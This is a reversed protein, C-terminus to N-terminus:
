AGQDILDLMRRPEDDGGLRAMAYRYALTDAYVGLTSDLRLESTWQDFLRWLGDRGLESWRDQIVSWLPGRRKPERITDHVAATWRPIQEAPIVVAIDALAHWRLLDTPGGVEYALDFADEHAGLAAYCGALAARLSMRTTTSLNRDETASLADLEALDLLPTLPQLRYAWDDIRQHEEDHHIGYHTREVGDLFGGDFLLEKVPPRARPALLRAFFPTWSDTGRVLWPCREPFGVDRASAAASLTKQRLARLSSTIEGLVTDYGGGPPLHTGAALLTLRKWPDAASEKAEELLQPVGAETLVCARDFARDLLVEARNAGGDAAPDRPPGPRIPYRRVGSDYVPIVGPLDIERQEWWVEGYAARGNPQHVTDPLHREMLQRLEGPLAKPDSQEYVLDLARAAEQRGFSALRPLLYRRPPCSERDAPDPSTIALARETQDRTLAPALGEIWGNDADLTGAEILDLIRDTYGAAAFAPAHVRAIDFHNVRPPWRPRPDSFRYPLTDFVEDARTRRDEGELSPLLQILAPTRDDDTMRRTIQEAVWSAYRAPVGSMLGDYDYAFAVPVQNRRAFAGGQDDGTSLRCLVREHVRDGLWRAVAVYAKGNVGVPPVWWPYPVFPLTSDNRHDLSAALVQGPGYPGGPEDAYRDLGPQSRAARVWEPLAEYPTPPWLQEAQQRTVCRTLHCAARDPCGTPTTNRLVATLVTRALPEPLLRILEAQTWLRVFARDPHEDPTAPGGPAHPDLAPPPPEPPHEALWDAVALAEEPRGLELLRHAYAATARALDETEGSHPRRELLRYLRPLDEDRMFPALHAIGMLCTHSWLEAFGELYALARGPRWLDHRVLQAALGPTMEDSLATREGALAAACVVQEPLRPLSRDASFARQNAGRVAAAVRAVDRRYGDVDDATEERVQRWRPHVLRLADSLYETADDGYSETDSESASESAPLLHQALHRALYGPVRTPALDGSRLADLTQRGWGTYADRYEDLEDNDRLQRTRLGALLPHALAVSAEGSGPLTFRDLLTLAAALRDGSVKRDLVKGALLRLEGLTVPGHALALVSFLCGADDVLGPEKQGWLLNQERWWRDLFGELGPRTTRLRSIWQELDQDPRRRLDQLYLATTVPDGGTLRLLHPAARDLAETSTGERDSVAQRLLEAVADDGLATLLASAGDPRVDIADFWHEATPLQRTRRASLLIRVDRGPRRPLLLPYPRGSLWGDVEDLADIVVLLTTGHPAARALLAALADRPSTGLDQRHEHVRAIRHALAECVSGAGATDSRLSVPFFVTHVTPDARKVVDEAWRTLLTSKGTGANGTVLYYAPADSDALWSNLATLEDRRGAFPLRGGPGNLHTDLFNAVLPYGPAGPDGALEELPQVTRALRPWRRVIDEALSAYVTGGVARSSDAEDEQMWRVVGVAVQGSVTDALVPGGSFGRPRLGFGVEGSFLQMVRRGDLIATSEVAIKAPMTQPDSTSPSYLAWGLAEVPTGKPADAATGLSLPHWRGPLPSGKDLTLLAVDLVPDHDSYRALLTVDPGLRVSFEEQLLEGKADILCHWCTVLTGADVAFATGLSGGAGVVEGVAPRSM